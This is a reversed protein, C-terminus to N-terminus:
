ATEKGIFSGLALPSSASQSITVSYIPGDGRQYNYTLGKFLNTFTVVGSSDSLETRVTSDYSNGSDNSSTESSWMSVSVDEKVTGQNDYCVWYGTVRGSISPTISITTMSYTQSVNASVSLTAGSFDYGESFIAVDWDGDTVNFTAVGSGNTMLTRGVGGKTLTIVAGAIPSTGDNVTLTVKRPGYGIGALASPDDVPYTGVVDQPISVIGGSLLLAGTSSKVVVFWLGTIAEDVVTSFLGNAGETLVDGSANNGIAGTLLDLLYLKMGATGAHLPSILTITKDAM